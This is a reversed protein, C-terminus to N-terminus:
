VGNHTSSSKERPYFDHSCEVAPKMILNRFDHVQAWEYFRSTTLLTGSIGFAYFIDEGKWSSEDVVLRKWRMLGGAGSLCWKRTPRKNDKWEVGSADVNIRAAGIKPLVRFYEPPKLRKGRSKGFRRQSLIEVPEFSSLGKLGSRKFEDRFRSSVLFEKLWFAVDGFGEGWTELHVHYPPLSELLGIFEGCEPCTSADGTADGDDFHFDTRFREVGEDGSPKKDIIYFNM